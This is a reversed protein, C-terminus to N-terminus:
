GLYDQGRTQRITRSLLILNLFHTKVIQYYESWGQRMIARFAYGIAEKTAKLELVERWPKLSYVGADEDLLHLWVKGSTKTPAAEHGKNARISGM